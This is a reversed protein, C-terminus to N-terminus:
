KLITNQVKKTNQSKTHWKSNIPGTASQKGHNQGHCKNSSFRTAWPQVMVAAHKCCWQRQQPSLSSWEITAGQSHHYSWPASTTKLRCVVNKCCGQKQEVSFTQVTPSDTITYRSSSRCSSRWWCPARFLLRLYHKYKIACRVFKLVGQAPHLLVPRSYLEVEEMNWHIYCHEKFAETQTDLSLELKTEDTWLVNAGKLSQLKCLNNWRLFQRLPQVAFYIM